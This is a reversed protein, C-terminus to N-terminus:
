CEEKKQFKLLTQAKGIDLKHAPKSARKQQVSECHSMEYQTLTQNHSSTFVIKGNRAMREALKELRQSKASLFILTHTCEKFMKDDRIIQAVRGNRQWDSQFVQTKIRISEAWSQIYISSNGESPILIKDPPRGIESLIPTLTNDLIDGESIKNTYGFVSLIIISPEYVEEDLTTMKLNRMISTM